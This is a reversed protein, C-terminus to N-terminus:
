YKPHKPETPGAVVSGVKDVDELVKMEKLLSDGLNLITRLDNETMAM